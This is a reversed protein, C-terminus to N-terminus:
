GQVFEDLEDSNMDEIDKLLDKAFPNDTKALDRIIQIAEDKPKTEGYTGFLYASALDYQAQQNGSDALEQCLLKALHSNQQINFLEPAVLYATSLKYLAKPYCQAASKYILSRAEETNKVVKKMALEYQAAPHGINAALSLYRDILTSDKETKSFIFNTNAAEIQEKTPVEAENLDPFIEKKLEKNSFEKKQGIPDWFDEGLVEKLNPKQRVELIKVDDQSDREMAMLSSSFLLGALFLFNRKFKRM